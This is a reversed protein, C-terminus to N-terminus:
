VAAAGDNIGASNGATVSGGEKFAPKLQALKERDPKRPGEDISVKLESGDQENDSVYMELYDLLDLLIHKTKM